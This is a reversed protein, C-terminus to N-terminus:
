GGLTLNSIRYMTGDDGTFVVSGITVITEGDLQEVTITGAGPGSGGLAGTGDPDLYICIVHITCDAPFTGLEGTWASGFM